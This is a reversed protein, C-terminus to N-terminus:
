SFSEMLDANARRIADLLDLHLQALDTFTLGVRLLAAHLTM